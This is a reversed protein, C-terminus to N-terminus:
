FPRQNLQLGPANWGVKSITETISTGNNLRIVLAVDHYSLTQAVTGRVYQFTTDPGALESSWSLRGGDFVWSGDPTVGPNIDRLYRLSQTLVASERDAQQLRMTLRQIDIQTQMLPLLGATLIVLAVLVEITTFGDDSAARKM